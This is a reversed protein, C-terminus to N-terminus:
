LGVVIHVCLFNVFEPIFDPLSGYRCLGLQLSSPDALEELDWMTPELERKHHVQRM